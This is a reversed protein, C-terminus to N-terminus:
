QASAITAATSDGEAEFSGRVAVRQDEDALDSALFGRAAIEFTGSIRGEGAETVTVWGSEGQFWGVPREATGAMYSAHFAASDSGPEDWPSRIPYRGPTPLRDGPLTLHLAGTGTEAGLSVTLVPRGSIAPSVVGYRAEHGASHLRVAGTSQLTFTPASMTPLAIAIAALIGLTTSQAYM